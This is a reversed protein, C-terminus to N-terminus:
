SAAAPVTVTSISTGRWTRRYQAMWYAFARLLLEPGGPLAPLDHTPRTTLAM